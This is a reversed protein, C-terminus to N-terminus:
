SFVFAFFFASISAFFFARRESSIALPTNTGTLWKGFASGFFAFRVAHNQYSLEVLSLASRCTAARRQQM